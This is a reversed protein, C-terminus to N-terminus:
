RSSRFRRLVERADRATSARALQNPWNSGAFRAAERARFRCTALLLLRNRARVRRSDNEDAFSLRLFATEYAAAVGMAYVYPLLGLTLWVPLAFQRGVTPWDISTWHALRFTIWALLAIGMVGLLGELYRRFTRYKNDTRAVVSAATLGVLVPQLVVEFALSLVVLETYVQVLETLGLTGLMRRRLFQPQTPDIVFNGFLVFGTVVIWVATDTLLSPRWLGIRSAGWAEAGVCAIVGLLPVLLKPHAAGRVIHGLSRRLSPVLLTWM